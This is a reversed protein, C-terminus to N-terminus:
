ERNEDGLVHRLFPLTIARKQALAAADIRAVAARVAEFSRELRLRLWAVVEPTVALQRDTFQKVILADMLADDPKDIEAVPITALRSRLDPLTVPWAAPPREAAILMTLGRQRVWNVAHFLANEDMAGGIGDIAIGNGFDMWGDGSLVAAEIRGAGSMARWVEMLHTKGSARAGALALIGGPWDPWRDIWEVARANCGTVLFDDRGLATRHPLEFALQAAIGAAM